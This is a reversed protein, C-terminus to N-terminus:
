LVCILPLIECVQTLLEEAHLQLIMLRNPVVIICFIFIVHRTGSHFGSIWDQKYCLIRGKLDNKIGRFPIFTEEMFTQSYCTFSASRLDQNLFFFFLFCLIHNSSASDSQLIRFACYQNSDCLTFIQLGIPLSALIKKDDQSKILFCSIFISM